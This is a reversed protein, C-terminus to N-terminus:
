HQLPWTYWASALHWESSFYAMLRLPTPLAEIDLQARLRATYKEQPLLLRSDLLPFDSVDGLAALAAQRTPFNYQIDGNLNNVLYQQTLAHYQLRYYQKVTAFEEDWLWQRPHLVEIDLEITLPVGNELAELVRPTFTYEIRANLLYVDGVLTTSAEQVTFLDKVEEGNQSQALGAALCLWSFLVFRMIRGM